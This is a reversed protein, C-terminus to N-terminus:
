HPAAHAENSVQAAWRGKTEPNARPDQFSGADPNVPSVSRRSRKASKDSKCVCACVSARVYARVCARVRVCM